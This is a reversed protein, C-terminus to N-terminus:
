NTRNRRQPPQTAPLFSKLFEPRDLRGGRQYDRWMAAAVQESDRKLETTLFEFLLKMLRLLAIGDTRGVRDWLWDSWRLFSWFPSSTLSWILPTTEIFNGSNGVLDWCRSFRRLKQLAAFDLLRTQLIEYPPHPNYIMQWDSDHRVIPTGRLRKLIGVQI